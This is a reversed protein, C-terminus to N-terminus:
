TDVKRLIKIDKYTKFPKWPCTGNRAFDTWIKICELSLDIDEQLPVVNQGTEKGLIWGFVSVITLKIIKYKLINGYALDDAHDGECWSPKLHCNGQHEVSHHWIPKVQMEYVYMSDNTGILTQAALYVGSGILWDGYWRCYAKTYNEDPAYLHELKNLTEDTVNVTWYSCM